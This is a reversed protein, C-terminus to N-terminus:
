RAARPLGRWPKDVFKDFVTVAMELNAVHPLAGFERLTVAAKQGDSREDGATIGLLQGEVQLSRVLVAHGLSFQDLRDGVQRKSRRALAIDATVMAFSAKLGCGQDCRM